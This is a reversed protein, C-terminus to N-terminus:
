MTRESEIREAFEKYRNKKAKEVALVVRHGWMYEIFRGLPASLIHKVYSDTKSARRLISVLM